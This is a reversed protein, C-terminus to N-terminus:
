KSKQCASGGLMKGTLPHHFCGAPQNTMIEYKVRGATSPTGAPLGLRETYLYPTQLGNVRTRLLGEQGYSRKGGKSFYWRQRDDANVFCGEMFLGDNKLTLCLDYGSLGNYIKQTKLDLQWQGVESVSCYALNVSAGELCIRSEEDDSSPSCGDPLIVSLCRGGSGQLSLLPTLRESLWYKPKPKKPPEQDDAKNEDSQDDGLGQDGTSEGSDESSGSEESPPEPGLPSDDVDDGSSSGESSNEDSESSEDDASQDDEGTCVRARTVPHVYCKGDALDPATFQYKMHFLTLEQNEVAYLFSGSENNDALSKLLGEETFYWQQAINGDKICAQMEVSRVMRTLCLERPYGSLHLHKLEPDHFWNQEEAGEVCNKMVARNRSFCKGTVPDNYICSSLEFDKSEVQLCSSGHQQVLQFPLNTFVQKDSDDEAMVAQCAVMGALFCWRWARCHKM